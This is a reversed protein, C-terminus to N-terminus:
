AEGCSYGDTWRDTADLVDICVLASEGGGAMEFLGVVRGDM